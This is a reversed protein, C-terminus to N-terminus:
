SKHKLGNMLEVARRQVHELVEIDKKYHLVSFQVCSELCLRALASCLVIEARSGSGVSNCVWDLIGNAEKVVQCLQSM